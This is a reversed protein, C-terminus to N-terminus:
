QIILEVEQVCVFYSSNFSFTLFILESNYIVGHSTTMAKCNIKCSYHTDRKKEQKRDIQDISTEPVLNYALKKGTNITSGCLDQIKLEFSYTM